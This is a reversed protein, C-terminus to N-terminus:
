ARKAHMRYMGWGHFLAGAILLYPAGPKLQPLLLGLALAIGCAGLLSALWVGYTTEVKMEGGPLGGLHDAGVPDALVALLSSEAADASAMTRKITTVAQNASQRIHRQVM